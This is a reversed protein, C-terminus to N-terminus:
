SFRRCGQSRHASDYSATMEWAPPPWGCRSGRSSERARLERAQFNGRHRESGARRWAPRDAPMTTIGHSQRSTHRRTPLEQQLGSVGSQAPGIGVKRLKPTKDNSTTTTPVMILPDTSTSPLAILLPLGGGTDIKLVTSPLPLHVKLVTEVPGYRPLREPVLVLM